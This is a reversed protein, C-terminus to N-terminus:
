DWSDKKSVPKATAENYDETADYTLAWMLDELFRKNEAQNKIDIESGGYYEDFLNNSHVVIEKAREYVSKRVKEVLEAREQKIRDKRAQIFANLEQRPIKRIHEDIFLRIDYPTVADDGTVSSRYYIHKKGQLDWVLVKDSVISYYWTDDSITLKRVGKQPRGEPNKKGIKRM